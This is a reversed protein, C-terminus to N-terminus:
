GLNVRFNGFFHSFSAMAQGELMILGGVTPLNSRRAAKMLETEVPEYVMDFFLTGPILGSILKALGAPPPAHAMGIPSANIV